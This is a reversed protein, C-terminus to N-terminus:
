ARDAVAYGFIEGIKALSSIPGLKQRIKLSSGCTPLGCIGMSRSCELQIFKSGKALTSNSAWFRRKRM